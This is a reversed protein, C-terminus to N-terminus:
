PNPTAAGDSLRLEWREADDFRMRLMVPLYGRQPDLWLLQELPAGAPPVRRLRLWQAQASGLDPEPESEVLLTWRQVEGHWAAVDLELRDGVNPRRAAALAAAQFMWSLRDQTAPPAPNALAGGGARVQGDEFRLQARDRGQRGQTSFRQPQLGLDQVAGESQWTPLQRHALRRQLRLQYQGDVVQWALEAEGDEGQWRLRYAWRGDAPFVLPPQSLAPSDAPRSSSPEAAM